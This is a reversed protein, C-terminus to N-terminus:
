NGGAGPEQMWSLTLKGSRTSALPLEFELREFPKHLFPHVETENALLRIKAARGERGYVVRVKYRAASDLGTYRLHLTQDYLPEAWHWWSMPWEPRPDRIFSILSSELFAPDAAGVGRMLHPQQEPDGLDDYFGG